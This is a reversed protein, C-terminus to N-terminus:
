PTWEAAALHEKVIHQYTTIRTAKKLKKFFKRGNSLNKSPYSWFEKMKGLMPIDGDIVTQYNALVDNHFTELRQIANETKPNGSKITECLFPNALLGRGIMFRGLTPFCKDLTQFFALDTIDGNYCVPHNLNQRALAFAGLDPKGDYMQEATRPHIIIERLPYRNLIPILAMLESKDSVGLRIKVSITIPSENCITELITEIREPHPLLGSGRQKKRVPKHPCGLNWNVTKYGLDHLAKALTVFAAANNGILQPTLPHGSNNEPLIDRLLKPAIKETNVTPIFPAMEADLGQFNRTFAKRYHRTTLGRMPALTLHPESM